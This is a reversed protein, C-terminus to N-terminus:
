WETLGSQMSSTEKAISKLIDDLSKLQLKMAGVNQKLAAVARGQEEETAYLEAIQKVYVDQDTKACASLFNVYRRQMMLAKYMQMNLDWFYELKQMADLLDNNEICDPGSEINFKVTNLKIYTVGSATKGDSKTPPAWEPRYKRAPDVKNDRPNVGRHKLAALLRRVAEAPSACALSGEGTEINGNEVAGKENVKYGEETFGCSKLMFMKTQTLQNIITTVEALPVISEQFLIDLEKVGMQVM